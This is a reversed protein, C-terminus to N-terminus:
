NKKNFKNAPLIPELEKDRPWNASNADEYYRLFNMRYFVAMTDLLMNRVFKDLLLPKHKNFSSDTFDLNIHIPAEYIKTFGLRQAVALLEIDFAFQKVVLRPLVKELVERKYVKLGAQTDRVKLRFLLFILIQYGLSYIRRMKSYIVKSAPHRKSGVVIDANYWEMHELLMSIGSADIEMGADIFSIIDGVARAMGYRIAYGKGKNEKYGYVKIIDDELTKATEYTKDAFGDVIVLIEYDWRTTMMVKNINTIDQIITKEKKYAPVIISILM